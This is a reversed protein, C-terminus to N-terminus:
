KGFAYRAMRAFPEAYLGAAVCVFVCIGLVIAEPAGFSAPPVAGREHDSDKSGARDAVSEGRDAFVCLGFSGGFSGRGLGRYRHGTEVLAHFLVYRGYAGATPPLGALALM